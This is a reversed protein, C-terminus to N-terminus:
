IKLLKSIPGNNLTDLLLGDKNYGGFNDDPLGVGQAVTTLLDNNTSGTCDYHFGGKLNTNKGAIVLYPYDTYKHTNHSMVPTWFIVTNDLVKNGDVDIKNSMDDLLDALLEAQHIRILEHAKNTVDDTAHSINHLNINLRTQLEADAHEAENYLFGHTFNNVIESGIAYTLSSTLDCAFAQSINKFIYPSSNIAPGGMAGPLANVDGGPVGCVNSSSSELQAALDDVSSQYADMVTSANANILQGRLAQVEQQVLDFIGQQRKNQYQLNAVDVGSTFISTAQKKAGAIARIQNGSADYCTTARGNSSSDTFFLHPYARALGYDDNLYQGVHVDLSSHLTKATVRSTGDVRRSGCLVQSNMEDHHPGDRTQILSDLNIGSVILMNEKYAQLPALTTGLEDGTLAYDGATSNIWAENRTAIPLGYSDVITLLRLPPKADASYANGAALSVFPTALLGSALKIFQRRNKLKTNM